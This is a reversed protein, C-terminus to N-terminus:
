SPAAQALIAEWEDTERLGDRQRMLQERREVYEEKSLDGLEFMTRVNALQTEIRQRQAAVDAM